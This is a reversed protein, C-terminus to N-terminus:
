VPRKGLDRAVLLLYEPHCRRLVYPWLRQEEDDTWVQM